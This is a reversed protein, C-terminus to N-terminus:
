CKAARATDGESYLFVILLIEKRGEKRSRKRRQINKESLNSLFNCVNQCKVWINRSIDELITSGRRQSFLVTIVGLSNLM